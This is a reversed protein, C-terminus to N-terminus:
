PRRPRSARRRTPRSSTPRRPRLTPGSATGARTPPTFPGCGTSTSRAWRWGATSSRRTRAPVRTWRRGTVADHSWQFSTARPTPSPGGPCTSGPRAGQRRHQDVAADLQRNLQGTKKAGTVAIWLVKGSVESSQGWTQSGTKKRKSDGITFGDVAGSDENASSTQGLKFDGRLMGYSANNWPVNEVVVWYTTSGALANNNGIGEFVAGSVRDAARDPWTRCRTSM